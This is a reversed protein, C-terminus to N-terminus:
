NGYPIEGDLRALELRLSALEAEAKVAMSCFQTTRQGKACQRWGDAEMERRILAAFKYLSDYSSITVALGAERALALVKDTVNSM